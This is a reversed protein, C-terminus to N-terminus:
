DDENRPLIEVPLCDGHLEAISLRKGPLEAKFHIDVIQTKSGDLEVKDDFHIQSDSESDTMSKQRRRLLAFVITIVSTLLALGGAATGVIARRDLMAVGTSVASTHSHPPLATGNTSIFVSRTDVVSSLASTSIAVPFAGVM